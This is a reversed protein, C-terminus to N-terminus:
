VLGQPNVILGKYSNNDTKGEMRFQTKAILYYKGNYEFTGCIDPKQLTHTNNITLHQWRMLDDARTNPSSYEILFDEMWIDYLVHNEDFEIRNKYVNKKVAMACDLLGSEVWTTGKFDIGEVTTSHREKESPLMWEPLRFNTKWFDIIYVNENKDLMLNGSHLDKHELWQAKLYQLVEELHLAKQPYFHRLVEMGEEVSTEILAREIGYKKELLTEFQRDTLSLLYHANEQKLLERHRNYLGITKLSVGYIKEITLMPNDETASMRIKPIKIDKPLTGMGRKWTAYFASHNDAEKLIARRGETHLPYKTVSGWKESAFIIGYTGEWVIDGDKIFRLEARFNEKLYPHKAFLEESSFHTYKNKEPDLIDNARTKIEPSVQASPHQELFLTPNIIMGQYTTSDIPWELRKKSSLILYYKGKYEFEWCLDPKQLQRTNEFSISQFVAVDTDRENQNTYEVLFDSMGIELLTRSDDFHYKEKNNKWQIAHLCNIFGSLIFNTNRVMTVEWEWQFEIDERKDSFLQLDKM